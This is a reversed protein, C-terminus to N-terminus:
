QESNEHNDSMFLMKGTVTENKVEENQMNRIWMFFEDETIKPANGLEYDVVVSNSLSLDLEDQKICCLILDYIMPTGLLMKAM